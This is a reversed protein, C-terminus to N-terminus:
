QGTLLLLIIYAIGSLLNIKAAFSLHNNFDRSISNNLIKKATPLTIFTIFIIPILSYRQFFIILFFVPLIPALLLFFASEYRALREGIIVAVTRKNAVLDTTIDRLNNISIMAMAFFGPILGVVASEVSINKAMIYYTATVPVPGFFILAFIEGLGLYALPWPGGTYLIALAICILGLYLIPLGGVYVSYLGIFFALIFTFIFAFKVQNPPILGAQTVRVPGLREDTDAKKKFDFYDNALNSGIQLLLAAFLCSLFVPLNFVHDTITLAAAMLVPVASASLTKPRIALFWNRM